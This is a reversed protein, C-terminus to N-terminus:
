VLETYIIEKCMYWQQAARGVSHSGRLREGAVGPMDGISPNTLQAVTCDPLSCHYGAMM